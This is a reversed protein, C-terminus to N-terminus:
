PFLGRMAKRSAVRRIGLTLAATRLDTKEAISVDYCARFTDSMIRKLRQNVEEEDWFFMQIDQVWEFYSVTVGGANCLIDPIVLVGDNEKLIRDAEVTTPGNAAEALVRCRLHGANDKHVVRELAAPVLFECELLLMEEPDIPESEAFGQVSGTSRVHNTLKAIDLGNPNYVAGRVDSVAVVRTGRLAIEQTTVSGVNGFGQVVARSSNLPINLRAAAEEICYVVGRGTAERRGKTGSLEVSKGTVIRPVNYGVQMSYTDYIWAMVQEDTGMDPAMVDIDPGIFPIMEMTFRRTIKELERQSLETPDCNVGGKAGGFPLGILGCKWGMLLALGSVEGLNVRPHYRLGGKGPGSTLSHQVRYGFFVRTEGNDMKVPVTVIATRKPFRLRELAGPDIGTREQVADFQAVAQRFLPSDFEGFDQRNSSPTM